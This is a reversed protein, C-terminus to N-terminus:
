QLFRLEQVPTRLELVENIFSMIIDKNAEEGFLKKFGFDTTPDLYRSM